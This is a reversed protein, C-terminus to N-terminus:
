RAGDSPMIAARTGCRSRYLQPEVPPEDARDARRNRREAEYEQIRGSDPLMHHLLDRTAPTCWIPGTFSDAVLKPLLGSHDIHAHTLIVADLSRADFAFPEFNLRELSRPGQFLGCDVLIRSSGSRVEM